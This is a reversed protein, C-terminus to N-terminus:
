PADDLKKQLIRTPSQRETSEILSMATRYPVAGHRLTGYPLTCGHRATHVLSRPHMSREFTEFATNSLKQRPSTPSQALHALVPGHRPRVRHQLYNGTTAAVTRAQLQLHSQREGM